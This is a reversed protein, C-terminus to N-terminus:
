YAHDPHGHDLHEPHYEEEEERVPKVGKAKLLAAIEESNRSWKSVELAGDGHENKVHVDVGPHDVLLQVVELEGAEAAELLATMGNKNAHYVAANEKMLLAAVERSGAKAAELLATDGRANEANVDCLKQELLYQVVDLKKFRAARSLPSDLRRGRPAASAGHKVLDKVLDLDGKSCALTLPTDGRHNAANVDLGLALLRTVHEKHGFHVASM